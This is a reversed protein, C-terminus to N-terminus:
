MLIYLIMDIKKLHKLNQFPLYYISFEEEMQVVSIIWWVKGERFNDM